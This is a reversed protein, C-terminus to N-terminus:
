ALRGLKAMAWLCGAVIGAMAAIAYLVWARKMEIEGKLLPRARAAEVGANLNFERRLFPNNEPKRRHSQEDVLRHILRPGEPRAEGLLHFLHDPPPDYPL